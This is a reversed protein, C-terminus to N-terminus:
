VNRGTTTGDTIITGVCATCVHTGDTWVWDRNIEDLRVYQGCYDCLELTVNEDRDYAGVASRTPRDPHTEVNSEAGFLEEAPDDTCSPLLYDSVRDGPPPDLAPAPSKWWAAGAGWTSFLRTPTYNWNLNSYWLGATTGPHTTGGRVFSGYRRIGRADVVVLKGAEKALRRTVQERKRTPTTALAGALIRTDSSVGSLNLRREHRAYQSWIGNHAVVAHATGALSLGVKRTIPFPHTLLRHSGGHTAWRAHFVYSLSTGIQDLVQCAQGADLGKIWQAGDGSQWCIGIGDDNTEAMREVEADPLRSGAEVHVLVCM